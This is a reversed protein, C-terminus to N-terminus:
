PAAKGTLIHLPTSCLPCRVESPKSAHPMLRLVFTIEQMACAAWRCTATITIVRLAPTLQLRWLLHKLSM